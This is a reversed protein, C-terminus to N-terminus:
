EREHMAMYHELYFQVEDGSFLGRVIVYGQDQYETHEREGIM